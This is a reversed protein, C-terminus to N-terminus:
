GGHGLPIVAILMCVITGAVILLGVVNSRRDILATGTDSCYFRFL